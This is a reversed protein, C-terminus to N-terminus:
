FSAILLDRRSETFGEMRSSQIWNAAFICPTGCLWLGVALWTSRMQRADAALWTALNLLPTVVLLIVQYSHVVGGHSLRGLPQGFWRDLRGRSFARAAELFLGLCLATFLYSKWREPQLLAASLSQGVLILAAGALLLVAFDAGSAEPAAPAVVSSTDPM